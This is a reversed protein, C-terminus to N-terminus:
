PYQGQMITLAIDKFALTPGHFLELFYLNGIKSIPAVKHNKFKINYSQDICYKLEDNTFDDFFKSLIYFALDSYNFDVLTVIDKSINPFYEPVYLGGDSCIGKIIAQSSTLKQFSGRTSLYLM